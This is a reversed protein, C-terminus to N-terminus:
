RPYLPVRGDADRQVGVRWYGEMALPITLKGDLGTAGTKKPNSIRGGWPGEDFTWSVEAEAIPAGATDTVVVEIQAPPPPM